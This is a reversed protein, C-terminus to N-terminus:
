VDYFFLSKIFLFITVKNVHDLKFWCNNRMYLIDLCECLFYSRPFSHLASRLMTAEMGLSSGRPNMVALSHGKSFM